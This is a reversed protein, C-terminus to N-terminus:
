RRVPPLVWDLDGPSIQPCYLGTRHSTVYKVTDPHAAEGAVVLDFGLDKCAEPNAWPAAGGFITETKRYYRLINGLRRVEHMQPSTASMWLQDYDGDGPLEDVSLDFFDCHHGQAELQAALYWLGLPPYVM